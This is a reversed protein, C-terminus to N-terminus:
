KGLHSCLEAKGIDIYLHDLKETDKFCKINDNGRQWESPHPKLKIKSTVSCIEMHKSAM